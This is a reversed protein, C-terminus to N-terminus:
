HEVQVSVHHIFFVRGMVREGTANAFSAMAKAARETGAYELWNLRLSKVCCWNNANITSAVNRLSSWRPMMSSTLSQDSTRAAMPRVRTGCQDVSYLACCRRKFVRGHLFHEIGDDYGGDLTSHDACFFFGTDVRGAQFGSVSRRMVGLPHFLLAIAQPAPRLERCGTVVCRVQQDANPDAISGALVRRKQRRNQRICAASHRNVSQKRIRSIIRFGVVDKRPFLKADAAGNDSQILTATSAPRFCHKAPLHIATKVAPFVSLASLNLAYKRTEFAAQGCVQATAGTVSLPYFNIQSDKSV